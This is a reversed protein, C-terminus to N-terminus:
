HCSRARLRHLAWRRAVALAAPVHGTLQVLNPDRQQFRVSHTTSGMPSPHPVCLPRPRRSGTSLEGAPAFGHAPPLPHTLSLNSAQPTDPAECTGQTLTSWVSGWSAGTAVQARDAGWLTNELPKEWPLMPIQTPPIALHAALVHRRPRAHHVLSILGRISIKPRHARRPLGLTSGVPGQPGRGCRSRGDGGHKHSVCTCGQGAAMSRRRSPTPSGRPRRAASILAPAPLPKPRAPSSRTQSRPVPPGPRRHPLVGAGRRRSPPTPSTGPPQRRSEQSTRDQPHDWCPYPPAPPHLLLLHLLLIPPLVPWCGWGM